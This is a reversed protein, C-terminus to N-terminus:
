SCKTNERVTTDIDEIADEIGSIREEIEQIRNTISADRVGARKELNELELATDRQTKKLTEIEIKLDQAASQGWDAGWDAPSCLGPILPCPTLLLHCVSTFVLFHQIQIYNTM